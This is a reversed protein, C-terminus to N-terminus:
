NIPPSFLVFNFFSNQFFYPFLTTFFLPNNQMALHFIVVKNQTKAPNPNDTWIRAQARRNSTTIQLNLWQCNVMLRSM